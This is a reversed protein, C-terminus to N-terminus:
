QTGGAKAARAEYAKRLAIAQPSDPAALAIRFGEIKWVRGNKTTLVYYPQTAQWASLVHFATPAESADHIVGRSRTGGLHDIAVASCDQTQSYAFDIREGEDDVRYFHHGGVPTEGKANRGVLVVLWGTQQFRTMPYVYKEFGWDGCERPHQALALRLARRMKAETADLPRPNDLIKATEVKYDSGLTAEAIVSPEQGRDSYFAVRIDDDPSDQVILTESANPVFASMFRPDGRMPDLALELTTRSQPIARGIVEAMAVDKMHAQPIECRLRITEADADPEGAVVAKACEAPTENALAVTSAIPLLMALLLRAIPLPAM